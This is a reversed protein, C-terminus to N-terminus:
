DSACRLGVIYWRSREHRQNEIAMFEHLTSPDAESWNGGHTVRFSAERPDPSPSATWEQVNGALDLVGEPSSDGPFSGVPAPGHNGVGLIKARDGPPTIGWPYNRRPWPNPEGNPLTEGGRMARVWQQSTPLEKGYFRCFARAEIWDVFAVPARDSNAGLAKTTAYVPQRIGTYTHLRSFTAFAANTTETRDLSFGPLAALQEQTYRPAERIDSSPPEGPGLFVFNGAGIRIMDARSAACSPVSITITEPAADRTAYGPLSRLPVISPACDGRWVILFARGGHAEVSEVVADGDVRKNSR